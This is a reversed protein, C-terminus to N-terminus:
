GEKEKFVMKIFEDPYMFRFGVSEAIAKDDLTDGVHIYEKSDAFVEKIKEWGSVEDKKIVFDPEVANEQWRCSQYEIAKGSAGGIIVGEEKLKKLHWPQIPGQPEGFSLTGDLDFSIVRKPKNKTFLKLKIKGLSSV